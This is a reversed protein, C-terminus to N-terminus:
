TRLCVNGVQGACVCVCMGKFMRVCVNKLNGVEACCLIGLHREKKMNFLDKRREM